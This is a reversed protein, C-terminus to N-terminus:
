KIGKDTPEKYGPGKIGQFLLNLFNDLESPNGPKQEVKFWKFIIGYCGGFLATVIDSFHFRDSIEGKKQGEKVLEELLTTIKALPQKEQSDINISTLMVKGTLRLYPIVDELVHEMILRIKVVSGSVGELEEAAFFLIDEVEEEVIGVLLSEKSTFHNFFTGKSVDAKETIEEISTNDFGKEEFLHRASHLIGAKTEQKKRERRSIGSTTM